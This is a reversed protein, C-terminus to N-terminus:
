LPNSLINSAHRILCEMNFMKHSLCQFFIDFKVVRYTFIFNFFNHNVVVIGVFSLVYLIIFKQWVVEKKQHGVKELLRETQKKLKEIKEVHGMKELVLRKVSRM